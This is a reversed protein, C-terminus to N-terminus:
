RCDAVTPSLKRLEENGIIELRRAKRILPNSHRREGYAIFKARMIARATLARSVAYLDRLQAIAKSRDVSRCLKPRNPCAATVLPWDITISRALKLYRESRAAARQADIRASSLAGTLDRRDKSNPRAKILQLAARKTVNTLELAITDLNSLIMSTNEDICGVPCEPLSAGINAQVGNLSWAQSDGVSVSAVGKNLGPKFQTPQGRELEGPTVKNLPGAPIQMTFPNSNEYGFLAIRRDVIKQACEVLPKVPACAVTGADVRATSPGAGAPKVQWQLATGRFTVAFVGVHRGPSFNTIPALQEGNSVLENIAGTAPNTVVILESSSLNEYTLYATRSGDINQMVCAPEM